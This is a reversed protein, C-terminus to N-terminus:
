PKAGALGHALIAIMSPMLYKHNFDVLVVTVITHIRAPPHHLFLLFLLSLPSNPAHPKSPIPITNFVYLHTPATSHTLFIPIPHIIPLNPSFITYFYSHLLIPKGHSVVITSCLHCQQKFEEKRKAVPCLTYGTWGATVENVHNAALLDHRTPM